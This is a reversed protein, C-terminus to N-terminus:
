ESYFKTKCGFSHYTHKLERHQRLNNENIFSVECIGCEVHDYTMELLGRKENTPEDRTEGTHKKVLHSYPHEQHHHQQLNFSVQTASAYTGPPLIATEEEFLKLRTDDHEYQELNRHDGTDQVEEAAAIIQNWERDTVGMEQWSGFKRAELIRRKIIQKKLDQVKDDIEQYACLDQHSIYSTLNDTILESLVKNDKNDQCVEELYLIFSFDESNCAIDISKKFEEAAKEAREIARYKSKM